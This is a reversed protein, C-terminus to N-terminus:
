VDKLEVRAVQPLYTVIDDEKQLEQIIRLGEDQIQMTTMNEYRHIDTPQGNELQKMRHAGAAIEFITKAENPKIETERLKARMLYKEVVELSLSQIRLLRSVTTGRDMLKELYQVQFAEKQAQWCNKGQFALKRFIAIPLETALYISPYTYDQFFLGKAYRIVNLQKTPRLTANYKPAQALELNENQLREKLTQFKLEPPTMNSKTALQEQFEEEIEQQYKNGM